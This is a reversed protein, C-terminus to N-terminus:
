PKDCSISYLERHQVILVKNNGWGIHVELSGIRGVAGDKVKAVLLRNKTQSDIGTKYICENTNYKLNWM